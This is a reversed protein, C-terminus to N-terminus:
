SAIKPNHLGNLASELVEIADKFRTEEYLQIPRELIRKPLYPTSPTTESNDEPGQPFIPPETPQTQPDGEGELLETLYNSPIANTIGGVNLATVAIVEGKANVIPGGSSGPSVPAYFQFYRVGDMETIYSIKGESFEDRVPNGVLFIKQGIDVEESNALPLPQVDASKVQLIALHHAKDTKLLWADLSTGSSHVGQGVRKVEILKSGEIVHSDTAVQNERVFFGSGVLEKIGNRDRGFILVTAVQLREAIRAIPEEVETKRKKTSDGETKTSEAEAIKAEAKAKEAEAKAREADAKKAEAQAKEAEAEAIKAEAEVKRAEAKAKKQKPKRRTQRPEKQKM